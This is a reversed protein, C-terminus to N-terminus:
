ARFIALDASVTEVMQAWAEPGPPRYIRMSPYWPSDARGRLWRWDLGVYPALLWCPKGLAGALHAVATDVSIVLDLHEVIAATDAFDAAGTDEPHLSTLGLALLRDAQEAPLNKNAANFGTPSTRWCLGVGGHGNWRARRDAPAALYPASPLTELTVGLHEPLSFYHSWYDHPDADLDQGRQYSVVRDVGPATALLAALPPPCTLTVRAAGRAKLSQAFRCMQIHDGFGQETVVLISKGELPEGRWSPFGTPGTPARDPNLAFRVDILPWGEAYRGLSLYLAGLGLRAGAHDPRLALANRYTAEAAEVQGSASLIHGLLLQLDPDGPRARTAMRLCHLAQDHLGLQHYAAGLNRILTVRPQDGMIQLYIAIAEAPRGANQLEVAVEFPGRGTVPPQMM